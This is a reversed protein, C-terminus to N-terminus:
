MKVKLKTLIAETSKKEAKLNRVKIELVKISENTESTEKFPQWSYEKHVSSVSQFNQLESQWINVFKKKIQLNLSYPTEQASFNLQSNKVLWDVQECIDKPYNNLIMPLGTKAM